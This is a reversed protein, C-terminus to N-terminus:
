VPVAINTSSTHRGTRKLQSLATDLVTKLRADQPPKTIYADAGSLAGKVKDFPSRKSTLLVVQGARASKIKKCVSYGDMGPMVVDLFVLDYEARETREIAEEGSSAFDLHISHPCLLHLKEELYKRVPFSDDVVLINLGSSPAAKVAAGHGWSATVQELMGLVRKLVLPRKLTPVGENKEAGSTVMIATTHPNSPALNKWAQLSHSDDANVFVVNALRGAVRRKESGVFKCQDKLQPSLRFISNIFALDRGTLGIASVTIQM